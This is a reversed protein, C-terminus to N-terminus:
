QIYLVVCSFGLCMWGKAPATLAVRHKRDLQRFLYTPINNNNNDDDINDNTKRNTIIFTITTTILVKM